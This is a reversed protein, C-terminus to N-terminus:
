KLVIRMFDEAIRANPYNRIKDKLEQEDQYRRSIHTLIVQKAKAQKAMRLVDEFSAHRYSKEEGAEGGFFTSDHILLDADEAIKLMNKNVLTDGSYVVKKGREISSIDELKIEKGRFLALGKEKITRYIRNKEPLGLRKIKERDIKIRPKEEFAFATAPISHKMPIATVRFERNDLIIQKEIGEFWVDKAFVDFDKTSYGLDLLIDVFKEAEPAYINLPEKRGELNMTELLGLLGAFHDAHWHTIFIDSIRMFNVGALLMQRQTGEGCDFLCSFEQESQYKLFVSAHNRKKTPVGATTGLFVVEIQTM